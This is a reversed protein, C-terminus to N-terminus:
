LRLLGALRGDAAATEMEAQIQSVRPASVGVLAAV